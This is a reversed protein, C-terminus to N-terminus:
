QQLAPVLVLSDKVRIDPIHWRGSYRMLQFTNGCETCEMMGETEELDLSRNMTGCVPCRVNERKM